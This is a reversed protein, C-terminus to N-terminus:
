DDVPQAYKINIVGSYANILVEDQQAINVKFKNSRMIDVIGARMKIAASLDEPNGIAKVEFPASYKNRNINIYSGAQRIESTNILREGNISIAEAGAANLENILSLLLDSSKTYVTSDYDKSSETDVTIVLGKGKVDVVGATIREKELAEQ